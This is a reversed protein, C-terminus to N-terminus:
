GKQHKPEVCQAFYTLAMAASLSTVQPVLKVAAMITTYYLYIRTNWSTPNLGCTSNTFVKGCYQWQSYICTFALVPYMCFQSMLCTEKTAADLGYYTWTLLLSLSKWFLIHQFDMIKYRVFDESNTILKGYTISASRIDAPQDISVHYNWISQYYM